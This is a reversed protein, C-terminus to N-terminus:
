GAKEIQIPLALKEWQLVLHGDEISFTLAETHDHPRPSAKVRLADKEPDHKYAGWQQPEANFIVEWTGPGPRTFLAYTGAALKEGEVLVPRDFTVTTAEDAGTRWVKGYPVLKGWVKRDRVEPRGYTVVVRAGGLEGELRANKSARKSDDGRKPVAPRSGPRSEALATGLGFTVLAAAIAIRRM